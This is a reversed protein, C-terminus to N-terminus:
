KPKDPRDTYAFHRATNTQKGPKEVSLNNSVVNEPSGGRLDCALTGEVCFEGKEGTSVASSCKL